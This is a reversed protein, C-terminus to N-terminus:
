PSFLVTYLANTPYYTPINLRLRIKGLPQRPSIRLQLLYFRMFGWTHIVRTLFFSPECELGGNVEQLIGVQRRLGENERNTFYFQTTVNFIIGAM